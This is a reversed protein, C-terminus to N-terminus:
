HHNDRAQTPDTTELDVDKNYVVPMHLSRDKSWMDAGKRKSIEEVDGNARRGYDEATKIAINKKAEMQALEIEHDAEIQKEHLEMEAARRLKASASFQRYMEGSFINLMLMGPVSFAIWTQVNDPISVFSSFFGLATVIIDMASFATVATGIFTLTVMAISSILQINNDPERHLLKHLWNGLGFEFVFPFLSSLILAFFLHSFDDHYTVNGDTVKVGLGVMAGATWSLFGSIILGIFLLPHDNFERMQRRWKDKADQEKKQLVSKIEQIKSM